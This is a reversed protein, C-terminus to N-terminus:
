AQSKFATNNNEFVPKKKGRRVCQGLSGEQEGCSSWLKRDVLSAAWGGDVYECGEVADRFVNLPMTTSDLQHVAQQFWSVDGGVNTKM